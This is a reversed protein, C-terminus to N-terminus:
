RRITKEIAPVAPLDCTCVTEQRASCKFEPCLVRGPAADLYLTRWVRDSFIVISYIMHCGLESSLNVASGRSVPPDNYPRSCASELRPWYSSLKAGCVLM